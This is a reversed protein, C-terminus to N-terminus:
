SLNELIIESIDIVHSAGNETKYDNTEQSVTRLFIHNLSLSNLLKIPFRSSM